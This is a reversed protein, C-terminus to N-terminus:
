SVICDVAKNSVEMVQATFVEQFTQSLDVKLCPHGLFRSEKGKVIGKFDKGQSYGPFLYLRCLAVQQQTTRAEANIHYCLFHMTAVALLIAKKPFM